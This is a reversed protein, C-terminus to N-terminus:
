QFVEKFMFGSFILGMLITPFNSVASVPNPILGFSVDFLAVLAFIVGMIVSEDSISYKMKLTGTVAIIIIFIFIGVGFSTLGFLGLVSYDGFDSLLRSISFSNGSFDIIIWGRQGTSNTGNITWYYTMTISENLYTNANLNVVGGGAASGFASGILYGNSDTLNFGYRELTWYSSAITFNFSYSTGNTLSTATPKISYTIGKQYDTINTTTSSGLTVTYSTQPFAQTLTYFPYPYLYFNATHVSDPNQWITFGGDAGTTGSGIIVDTGSISRTLNVSVGALPQDAANILQFTTYVGNASSLLYLVKNNTAQSYTGTERYSRQPYDSSSYAITGDITASENINSCIRLNTTGTTNTYTFSGSAITGTLNYDYSFSLGTINATLTSSSVEDKFSYNLYERTLSSNCLGFSFLTNDIPTIGNGSNYLYTVDSSNLTKNWVGFEDLIVDQMIDTGGFRGFMSFGVGDGAGITYGALNSSNVLTGNMYLSMKSSNYTVVVHVLTKNGISNYTQQTTGNHTCTYFQDSVIGIILENGNCNGNGFIDQQSIVTTTKNMWFSVSLQSQGVLNIGTYNFDSTPQYGYGIKAPKWNTGTVKLDLLYNYINKADTGSTENFQWYSLLGDDLTNGFTAYARAPPTNVIVWISIICCLTFSLWIRDVIVKNKNM